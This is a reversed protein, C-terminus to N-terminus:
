SMNGAWLGWCSSTRPVAWVGVGGGPNQACCCTFARSEEESSTNWCVREAVSAQLLYGGGLAMKGLVDFHM